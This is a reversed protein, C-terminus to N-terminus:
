VVKDVRVQGRMDVATDQMRYRWICFVRDSYDLFDLDQGPAMGKLCKDEFSPDQEKHSHTVRRKAEFVHDEAHNGLRANEFMSQYRVEVWLADRELSGRVRRVLYGIRQLVTSDQVVPIRWGREGLHSCMVALTGHDM